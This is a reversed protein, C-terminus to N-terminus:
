VPLLSDPRWSQRFRRGDYRAPRASSSETGKCPSRIRVMWAQAPQGTKHQHPHHGAVHPDQRETNQPKGNRQAQQLNVQRKNNKNTHTRSLFSGQGIIKKGQFSKVPQQVPIRRYLVLGAAVQQPDLTRIDLLSDCGPAPPGAKEGRTIRFSVPSRPEIMGLPYGAM